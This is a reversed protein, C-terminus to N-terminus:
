DRHPEALAVAGTLLAASAAATLVLPAKDSARYALLGAVADLADVALGVKLLSSRHHPALLGAAGLAVERAGFLRMLLASQPASQGLRATTLVTSPALWSAAGLAIRAVALPPALDLAM